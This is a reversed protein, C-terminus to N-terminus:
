GQGEDAGSLGRLCRCGYTAAHRRALRGIGAMPDREEPRELQSAGHGCAVRYPTGLVRDREVTVIVVPGAAGGAPEGGDGGRDASVAQGKGQGRAPGGILVVARRSV